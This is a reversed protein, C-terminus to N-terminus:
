RSAYRAQGGPGADRPSWSGRWTAAAAARAVLRVTRRGLPWLMCGTHAVLSAHQDPSGQAHGPTRRAPRWPLARRQRRALPAAHPAAKIGIRSL